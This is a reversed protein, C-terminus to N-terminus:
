EENHKGCKNHVLNPPNYEYAMGRISITIPSSTYVLLLESHQHLGLVQALTRPFSSENGLQAIQANSTRGISHQLACRKETDCCTSLRQHDPILAHHTRWLACILRHASHLICPLDELVSATMAATALSCPPSWKSRVAGTPLGSLPPSGRTSCNSCTSTPRLRSLVFYLLMSSTRDSSHAERSTNLDLRRSLAPSPESFPGSRVLQELGM